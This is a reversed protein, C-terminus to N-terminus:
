SRSAFLRASLKLDLVVNEFETAACQWAVFNGGRDAEHRAQLNGGGALQRAKGEAQLEVDGTLGGVADQVKGAADKMTGDLQNSNM